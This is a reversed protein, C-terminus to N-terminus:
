SQKFHQRDIVIQSTEDCVPGVFSAKQKFLAMFAECAEDIIAEFFSGLAYRRDTFDQPGHSHPSSLVVPRLLIESPKFPVPIPMALVLDRWLRLQDLYACLGAGGFQGPLDIGSAGTLWPRGPRFALTVEHGPM